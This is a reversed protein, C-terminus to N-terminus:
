PSPQLGLDALIKPSAEEMALLEHCASCDQAITKEGASHQDDHCRFCGTFDTHGINNIYTGWEIKMEPFVNREYISAVASASRRVEDTQRAYVDPHHERYFAEIREPILRLAEDRSSYSAKLLEVGTKKLSPLAPSAQGSALIRDMGREPLEFTHTPRNHCDVCDMERIPLERVDEAKTGEAFYNLTGQGATSVEVWPIDQRKSDTHAYRIRVGPGIHAGHIGRRTSGGGIRMMLVTDTRTNAEDDAFKPIVRLRDGGFKDPWHCGECTDRAPRLNEVPTPIPREFTDLMVAVVQHAGSLKSRVFWSAGPGIHCKVCDVRAHPSNQYATYEPAMVTHCTLGCFTNSDMYSVTSYSLHSAIILNAVTTALLFIAFRRVRTSRLDIHPIHGHKGERRRQWWIGLPILALGLFFVIPLVLFLLIGLYPNSTEHGVDGIILAIWFIASGTVLVVGTASIWNSSLYLLPTLWAMADNIRNM